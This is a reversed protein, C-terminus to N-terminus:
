KEKLIKKIRNITAVNTNRANESSYGNQKSIVAAQEGNYYSEVFFTRANENLNPLMNDIKAYIRSIEVEKEINTPGEMYELPKDTTWKFKSLEKNRNLMKFRLIPTLFTSFQIHGFENIFLNVNKVAEEYFDQFLDEKATGHINYTNIIHQMSKEASKFLPMLTNLDNNFKYSAILEKQKEKTLKM